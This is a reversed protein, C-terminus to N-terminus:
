QVHSLLESQYAPAPYHFPVPGDPEGDVFQRVYSDTSARVEDPTGSAVIRGESVFYLYDVIKLSEYVDHTVVVSTIGLADNLKRILQGIVGLSIPDLGAFPEDYMVVMPDLAIARALAVRRAMGGSLEAPMLAAAGRLGVAHLKMLVLDRILEESLDTHERMPFAINEFVSMDTFLAGFQFLMGFRRRLAYLADSDLDPVSQGAVIIRGSQPKLQGGILRLMTTKGCGSGGMIAVIRGRPVRMTIGRLVLRREYAFSVDSLEIAPARREARDTRTQLAHLAASPAEAM